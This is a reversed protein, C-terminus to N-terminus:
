LRYQYIGLCDLLEPMNEIFYLFFLKISWTVLAIYQYNARCRSRDATTKKERTREFSQIYLDASSLQIVESNEVVRCIIDNDIFCFSRANESHFYDQFLSTKFQYLVVSTNLMRTSLTSIYNLPSPM